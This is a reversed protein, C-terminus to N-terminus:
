KNNKKEPSKDSNSDELVLKQINNVLDSDLKQSSKITNWMTSIDSSKSM